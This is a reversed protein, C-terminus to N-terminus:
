KVAVNWHRVFYSVVLVVSVTLELKLCKPQHSKNNVYFISFGVWNVSNLSHRIFSSSDTLFSNIIVHYAQAIDASYIGSCHTLSFIDHSERVWGQVFYAKNSYHVEPPPPTVPIPISIKKRAQM